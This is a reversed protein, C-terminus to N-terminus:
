WLWTSARADDVIALVRFRRGETFQESVFDLLWRENPHLLVLM